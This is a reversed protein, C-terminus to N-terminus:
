FNTHRGLSQPLAARLDGPSHVSPSLSLGCPEADPGRSSLSLQGPQNEGDGWRLLYVEQWGERISTELGTYAWKVSPVFQPKLLLSKGLLWGPQKTTLM